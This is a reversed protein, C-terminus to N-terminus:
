AKIWIDGEIANGGPDATGVWITAGPNGGGASRMVPMALGAWTVVGGAVPSGSGFRVAPSIGGAFAGGFNFQLAGVAALYRDNTGDYYNNVKFYYNADTILSVTHGISVLEVDVETGFVGGGSLFQAASTTGTSGGLNLRTGAAMKLNGLGGVMGSLLTTTTTRKDAVTAINASADTTVQAIPLYNAQASHTTAWSTTGDPNFDLYMTTSPNGTTSYNPTSVTRRRLTGDTQLAFYVCSTVDLQSATTGDKTAVGGSYVFATFLDQEFSLTAEAYMTEQNNAQQYTQTGGSIYPGSPNSAGPTYPM